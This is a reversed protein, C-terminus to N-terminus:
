LVEVIELVTAEGMVIEGVESGRSMEVGAVKVIWGESWAAYCHAQELTEFVCTGPLEKGMEDGDWENSPALEAGIIPLTDMFRYGIDLDDDM